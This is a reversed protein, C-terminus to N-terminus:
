RSLRTDEVVCVPVEKRYELNSHLNKMKAQPSFKSKESKKKKQQWCAYEKHEM